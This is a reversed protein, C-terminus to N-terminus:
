NESNEKPTLKLVKSLDEIGVTLKEMGFDLTIVSDQMSLKPMGFGFLESLFETTPAQAMQEASSEGSLLPKVISIFVDLSFPKAIFHNVGLKKFQESLDNTLASSIVVKIVEKFKGSSYVSKMVDLGTMEPMNHDLFMLQYKNKNLLSLANKGDAAEDIETIRFRALNSKVIKRIMASDDAILVRVKDQSM